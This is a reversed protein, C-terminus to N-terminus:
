CSHPYGVRVRLAYRLPASATKLQLVRCTPKPLRSFVLDVVDPYYDVPVTLMFSPEYSCNNGSCRRTTNSTKSLQLCIYKSLTM